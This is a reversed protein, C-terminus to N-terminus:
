RYRSRRLCHHTQGIASIRARYGHVRNNQPQQRSSKFRIYERASREEALYIDPAEQTVKAGLMPLTALTFERVDMSRTPAPLNPARPGVYEAGDMSGLIKNINEERASWSPKRTRSAKSPSVPRQKRDKGALAALVLALVRDEFSSAADDEGDGIDSGQLLAEIDGIAHAAMQLKEIILRGVIYEELHLMINFISVHAHESALRQVRGIRQEVIMPNPHCTTTSWCTRLRFTSAKRARRPRYSSMAVLRIKGFASSRRRIANVPTATLSNLM